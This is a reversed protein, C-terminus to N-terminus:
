CTEPVVPIPIAPETDDAATVLDTPVEDEDEIVVISLLEPLQWKEVSITQAGSVPDTEALLWKGLNNKSFLNVGTVKRVGTVRAVIVELEQNSVDLGLTWGSGDHGGPSLAWLYNKLADRVDQLVKDRKFGDRLGVAVGLGIGVYEVGIVYLETALPRRQDLFAHVRELIIRDPRPNPAQVTAAKPLVMVSVVGPVGERYQHPKFKPLVEVRGLDVGPTQVALRQYDNETVARNGHQLYSPIRKEAEDLTEADEGGNTALPQLVKLNPHTIATINNAALNGQKGGGARMSVVRIRMGNAPVRGRVGDGFLITGAESDLQYVRDDRNATALDATARWSVFGKALEEVQIQLSQPEVSAGPLAVSLDAAGNATAVVINNLTKRQDMEVTNIGLWSLPLTNAQHQPRLRIWAILRSAKDADDIRPPRDGVGANLDVTVDNEPVGIDDSDPLELRVVGQQSFGQTTDLLVDLHLYQPLGNSQLRPSSIEWQWIQDAAIQKGIQEYLQPIEIQPAIGLNLVKSGKEDRVLIEKVSLVTDASPAMLAIWATQDVTNKVFDFGSKSAANNEYIPTAIYPNSRSVNYVSELGLVIESLANLEQSSPIRKAYVQANLPLVNIESKTEFDVPGKITTFLPVEIPKILKDNAMQLAVLGKAPIAPRMPINLLRLFVLRQREPILNARYLITDALWAFLEILTRGPDGVRPNTWEPTHGPIRSLLEAVLDEFNRDDLKYHPIPM